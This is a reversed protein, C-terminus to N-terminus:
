AAKRLNVDEIFCLIQNKTYGLLRGLRITYVNWSIKGERYMKKARRIINIASRNDMDKTAVYSDIEECWELSIIDSLSEWDFRRLTRESLLGVQKNSKLFLFIEAGEHPGRWSEGRHSRFNRYTECDEESVIVKLYM